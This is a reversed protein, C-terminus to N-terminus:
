FISLLKSYLEAHNSFIEDAEQLYSRDLTTELAYCVSGASKASQIGLKANEIVICEAANLDLKQIAKLYPEPDPKGKKVDDVTILVSIKSLFDKTLTREVRERSAGTVLAIPIKKEGLLTFISNIEPYLKFKNEKLYIAEKTNVVSEAIGPELGYKNIFFQAVQFRGMGELLFYDLSNLQVKFPSFAKCWAMFNDNMTDGIVGDFDFVVAKYM